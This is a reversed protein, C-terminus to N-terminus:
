PSSPLLCWGILSKRPTDRTHTPPRDQSQLGNITARGLDRTNKDRGCCVNDLWLLRDLQDALRVPLRPPSPTAYPDFAAASVMAPDGCSLFEFFDGALVLHAPAQSKVWALFQALEEADDFLGGGTVDALHVDSIVFLRDTSTM